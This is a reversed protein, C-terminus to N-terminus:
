KCAAADLARLAQAARQAAAQRTAPDKIATQLDTVSAVAADRIPQTTADVAANQLQTLLTGMNAEITTTDTASAVSELQGAITTMSAPGATACLEDVTASALNSPIVASAAPLVSATSAANCAALILAMAVPAFLRRNM